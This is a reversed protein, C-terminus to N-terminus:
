MSAKTKAVNQPINIGIFIEHSGSSYKKINSLTADYSYGVRFNSKEAGIMMVVSENHRYSVGLWVLKKYITKANIDMQAPAQVIAKMLLSPEAEFDDNIKIRYGGTFFYHRVLTNLESAETKMEIKTQFLQPASLGVYYKDSYFYIGGSADPLIDTSKNNQIAIDDPENLTLMTNDVVYQLAYGALGLSLKSKETVPFHYAYALEIGTRRDPGTKDNFLIGGVGMNKFVQSHASLTQTSPAYSIGSWQKRFTLVVPIHDRSGAVAPNLFFDNNMYQSYFPMQQGKAMVAIAVTIM